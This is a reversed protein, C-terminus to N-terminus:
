RAAALLRWRTAGEVREFLKVGGTATKPLIYGFAIPVIPFPLKFVADGTDLLELAVHRRERRLFVRPCGKGILPQRKGDRRVKEIQDIRRILVTRDAPLDDRADFFSVGRGPLHPIRASLILM